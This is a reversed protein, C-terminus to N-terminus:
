PASEKLSVLLMPAPSGDWEVPELVVQGDDVIFRERMQAVHTKAGELTPSGATHTLRCVVRTVAHSDPSGPFPREEFFASHYTGSEIHRLIRIQDRPGVAFRGPEIELMM